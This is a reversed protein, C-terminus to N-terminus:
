NMKSRRFSIGAIKLIQEKFLVYQVASNRSIDERGLYQHLVGEVRAGMRLWLKGMRKASRSLHFTVREVKLEDIAIRAIFAYEGRTLGVKSYISIDVNISNCNHFIVGGVLEGDRIVGFARNVFFPHRNFEKFTWAAVALDQGGLIARKPAEGTQPDIIM